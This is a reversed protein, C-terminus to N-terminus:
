GAEVAVVVRKGLHNVFTLLRKTRLFEVATEQLRLLPDVRAAGVDGGVGGDVGHVVAFATATAGRCSGRSSPALGTTTTRGRCLLLLGRSRAGRHTDNIAAGTGATGGTTRSRWALETAQRAMNGIATMAPELRVEKAEAIIALAVLTLNVHRLLTM